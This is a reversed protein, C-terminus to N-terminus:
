VPLNPILFLFLQSFTTRRHHLTQHHRAARVSGSVHVLYTERREKEKKELTGPNRKGLTLSKIIICTSLLSTRKENENTADTSVDKERERERECASDHRRRQERRRRVIDTTSDDTTTIISSPHFPRHIYPPLVASICAALSLLTSHTFHINVLM